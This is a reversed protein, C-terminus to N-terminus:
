RLVEVRTAYVGSDSVLRLVYWGGALASVDIQATGGVFQRDMVRRGTADILSIRQPALRDAEITLLDSSPNPYVNVFAPFSLDQTASLCEMVEVVVSETQVTPESPCSISSSLTAYVVDGDTFDTASWSAGTESQLSDNRFWAYQPAAGGNTGDVSFFIPAGPCIATDSEMVLEASVEQIATVSVVYAESNVSPDTVCDASSVMEALLVDGNQLTSSAYTGSDVNQAVGNLYWEYSPDSGANQANTTFVLETGACQHNEQVAILEVSAVVNSVISITLANSTVVSQSVCEESSTATLTVVDGDTLNDIFFGPISAGFDNGNIAWQYIPDTGGNLFNSTFNISTGQCIETQSASITVEPVVIPQVNLGASQSFQVDGASGTIQARYDGTDDAAVDTLLLTPANAGSIDTGNRQWQIGVPDPHDVSVAFSVSEGACAMQPQPQQTITPPFYTGSSFEYPGLDVTGGVIRQLGDLDVTINQESVAANDGADLAVSVELLHLNGAATDVFMPDTMYIMGDGCTTFGGFGANTDDCAAVDVISNSITPTGHINRFIIGNPSFNGYIISNRVIASANGNDNNANNYIAGGVVARNGVFACNTIIPSSNGGESGLNYIAGASSIARNKYFICNNLIPSCDGQKGNNYMGAGYTQTLNREFRCNDLRPNCVGQIGNSFMGAGAGEATNERFTCRNFSPNVEGMFGANFVAGGDVTSHNGEFLVDTFSPNSLGGFFGQNYVAGGQDSSNNTFNCSSVSGGANGQQGFNIIAGGQIQSSNGLFESNEVETACVGNTGNNYIAGGSGAVAENNWFECNQFVPKGFGDFSADTYVAGGDIESRNNQFRCNEVLPQANGGFNCDNYLAGGRTNASNDAFTCNRITPYAFNPAVGGDNFWGAGAQGPGDIVSTTDDANGDRIIFGDVITGDTVNNTYVVSFANNTPSGDGDLDGSLVTAHAAWDRQDLTTESGTFGGYLEVNNPIVFSTAREDTTCDTCQTPTYVGAAVWVQTGPAANELVQRLDGAADNWATGSGTAGPFVYTTQASLSLAFLLLFAGTTYFTINM